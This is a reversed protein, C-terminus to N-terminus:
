TLVLIKNVADGVSVSLIHSLTFSVTHLAPAGSIYVCLIFRVLGKSFIDDQTTNNDDYLQVNSILM